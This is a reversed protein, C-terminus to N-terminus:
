EQEFIKADVETMKKDIQAELDSLFKSKVDEDYISNERCFEQVIHEINQNKHM